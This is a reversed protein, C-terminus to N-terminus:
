WKCPSEIAIQPNVPQSTKVTSQHTQLSEGPSIFKYKLQQYSCYPILRSQLEQFKCIKVINEALEKEKAELCAEVLARWTAESGKERKWELLMTWKQAKFSQKFDQKIEERKPRQMGLHVALHEWEVMEGAIKHLENEKPSVTNPVRLVLLDDGTSYVKPAEVPLIKPQSEHWPGDV